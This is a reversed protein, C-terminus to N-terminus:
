QLFGDHFSQPIAMLIRGLYYFCFWLFVFGTGVLLGKRLNSTLWPAKKQKSGQGTLCGSCVVKLKTETICERCFFRGCDPCRAVAERPGHNFCRKKSLHQNM